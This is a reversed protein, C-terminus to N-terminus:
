KGNEAEHQKRAVEDAAMAVNLRIEWKARAANYSIRADDIGIGSALAHDLRNRAKEMKNKAESEEASRSASEREAYGLKISM